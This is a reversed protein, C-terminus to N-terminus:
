YLSLLELTEYYEYLLFCKEYDVFYIQLAFYATCNKNVSYKIETNKEKLRFFCASFIYRSFFPIDCVEKHLVLVNHAPTERRKQM